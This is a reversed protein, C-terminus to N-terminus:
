SSRPIQSPYDRRIRRRRPVNPLRNGMKGNVEWGKEGPNRGSRDGDVQSTDRVL